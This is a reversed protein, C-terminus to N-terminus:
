LHITKGIGDTYYYYQKKWIKKVKM